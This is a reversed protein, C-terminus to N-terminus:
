HSCPKALVSITDDEIGRDHCCTGLIQKNVVSPISLFPIRVFNFIETGVQSGQDRCHNMAIGDQPWPIELASLSSESAGQLMM